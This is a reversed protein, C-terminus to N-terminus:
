LEMSLAATIELAWTSNLGVFDRYDYYNGGLALTGAFKHGQATRLLEHDLELGLRHYQMASLERDRTRSDNASLEAYRPRYFNVASQTYFRYRLSLLSHEGLNFGLELLVTHSLLAWDDVYFRYRLGISFADTVARRLLGAFAHRTRTRPVREAWCLDAGICGFGTADPGVGVFRYPSAQYGRV